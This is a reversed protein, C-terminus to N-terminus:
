LQFSVGRHPLGKQETYFYKILSLDTSNWAGLIGVEDGSTEMGGYVIGQDYDIDGIHNYRLKKLEDPIANYNAVEIAMLGDSGLDYSLSLTSQKFDM